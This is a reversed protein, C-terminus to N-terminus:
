QAANVMSDIFGGCEQLSPLEASKKGDIGGLVKDILLRGLNEHFHKSGTCSDVAGFFYNRNRPNFSMVKILNSLYNETMPADIAEILCENAAIEKIRDMDSIAKRWHQQEYNTLDAEYLKLDNGISAFGADLTSLEDQIAKAEEIYMVGNQVRMDMGKCLQRLTNIRSSTQNHQSQVVSLAAQKEFYVVRVAELNKKTATYRESLEKNLM